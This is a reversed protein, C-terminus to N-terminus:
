PKQHEAGSKIIHSVEKPTMSQRRPINPTSLDYDMFTQLRLGDIANEQGAILVQNEIEALRKGRLHNHCVRLKAAMFSPHQLKVKRKQPKEGEEQVKAELHKKLREVCKAHTEAASHPVGM